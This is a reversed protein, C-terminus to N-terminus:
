KLWEEIEKRFKKIFGKIPMCAADGLPCVTRGMINDCIELLLDIDEKEGTKDYIRKVIKKMWTTGERCPTCQGCSEHSYFETTTKMVEVIKVDEDMVVIGGSGLMSGIKALSDFDMAVDIENETLVPASM